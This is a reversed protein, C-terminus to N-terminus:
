DVFALHLRTSQAPAIVYHYFLLLLTHLAIFLLLKLIILQLRTVVMWPARLGKLSPQDLVNIPLNNWLRITDPFFSGKYTNTHFSLGCLLIKPHFQWTSRLHQPQIYAPIPIATM